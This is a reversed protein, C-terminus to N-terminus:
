RKSRKDHCSKQCDRWRDIGAPSMAATMPAVETPMAPVSRFMGRGSMTLASVAGIANATPTTVLKDPM